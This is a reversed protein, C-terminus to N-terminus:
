EKVQDPRDPHPDRGKGWPHCRGLRRVTLWTGKLAGHHEVELAYTSCTPDYRCPSPRGATVARYARVGRPAADRAIGVAPRCPRRRQGLATTTVSPRLGTLARDVHLRLEAADCAAAEPRLAVLYAGSRPALDAVIARLQRRLRSRTM